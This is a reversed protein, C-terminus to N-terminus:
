WTYRTRPDAELKRRLSLIHFNITRAGVASNNGWVKELLYERSFARGRNRSLFALLGYETPTPRVTAGVRLVRRGPVDIRLNGVKVIESAPNEAPTRAPTARRLM